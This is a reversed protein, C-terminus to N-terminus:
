ATSQSLPRAAMGYDGPATERCSPRGSVVEVWQALPPHARRWEVEPLRFDLYALACYVAIGGLDFAPQPATSLSDVGRRIASSWRRLWHASPLTDSRRQELVSAVAADMIGDALAQQRLIHLREIRNQGLLSPGPGLADLYECIVPSDFIPGEDSSLVPVKGLPNLALLQPSDLHPNELLEAVVNTLGKERILIRVKRAFPSGPSFHLEMVWAYAHPAEANCM